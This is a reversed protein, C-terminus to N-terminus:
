TGNHSVGLDYRTASESYQSVSQFNSLDTPNGIPTVSYSIIKCDCYITNLTREDFLALHLKLTRKTWFKGYQTFKPTSGGCSFKGDKNQIQYLNM